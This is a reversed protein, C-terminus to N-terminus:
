ARRRHLSSPLRQLPAIAEAAGARLAYPLINLQRFGTLWYMYQHVARPAAEKCYIMRPACGQAVPHRQAAAQPTM